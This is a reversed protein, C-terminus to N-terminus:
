KLIYGSWDSETLVLGHTTVMTRVISIFDALARPDRHSVYIERYNEGIIANVQYFNMVAKMATFLGIEDAMWPDDVKLEATFM